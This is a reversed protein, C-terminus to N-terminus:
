NEQAADDIGLAAIIVSAAAQEGEMKTNGTGSGQADLATCTVEFGTIKHDATYQPLPQQQHECYEKLLSKPDREWLTLDAEALQARFLYEVSHMAATMGGDILVAGLLAEIVDSRAKKASRPLQLAPLELQEGFDQLRENRVLRGMARSLQEVSLDPFRQFLLVAVCQNLVRDGLWELRQGHAATIDLATELLQEDAFQHDLLQQPTM